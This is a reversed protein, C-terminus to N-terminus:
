LPHILEERIGLRLGVRRSVLGAQDAELVVVM